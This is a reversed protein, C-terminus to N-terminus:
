AGGTSKKPAAKKVPAKKAAAKKKAPAKKAPTTLTDADIGPVPTSLDIQITATDTPLPDILASIVPPDVPGPVDVTTARERAVAGTSIGLAAVLVGIITEIQSRTLDLVNVANLAALGSGVFATLTTGVAIWETSTGKKFHAVLSGFFLVGSAVAAVVLAAQDLSWDIVNFAVLAVIVANVLVAIRDRIRLIRDNTM